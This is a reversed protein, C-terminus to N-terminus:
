IETSYSANSNRLKVNNKFNDSGYVKLIEFVGM